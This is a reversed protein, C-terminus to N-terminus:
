HKGRKGMWGLHTHQFSDFHKLGYGLMRDFSSHALFIIGTSILWNEQLFYGAICALIIGGRHHLLNYTIAGIKKNILYAVFSLDPVFFLALFTTWIGNLFLFFILTFFICLGLEELRVIQKM